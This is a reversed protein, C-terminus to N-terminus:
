RGLDFPFLGPLACVVPKPLTHLRAPLRHEWRLQRQRDEMSPPRGSKAMMKTDGGSCFAQGAGTLLVCGIEPDTELVSVLDDLAEKLEMSLANRSEPRNLTVIAVREDVECLLSDTGTDIPRTNGM